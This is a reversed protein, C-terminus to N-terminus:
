REWEVNLHVLAPGEIVLAAHIVKQDFIEYTLDLRMWLCQDFLAYGFGGVGENGRGV